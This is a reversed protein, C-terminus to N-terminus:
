RWRDVDSQYGYDSKGCHGNGSVTIKGTCWVNGNKVAKFDAFLESKATLDAISNIPSDISANYILYDANKAKAYFEEM